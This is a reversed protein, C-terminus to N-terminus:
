KATIYKASVWGTYGNYTTKAWGDIAETVTIETGKPIECLVDSSTNASSRLNLAGSSTSIVYKGPAVPAAPTTVTEPEVFRYVQGNEAKIGYADFLETLTVLKYGEAILRPVLAEVVDATFNYIDHMLVISGKDSNAIVHEVIKNIDAQRQVESRGQHSADKYKWDNTDVNWGIFPMGAIDTVGQTFGGPARLYKCEVGTIEKIKANNGQIQEKVEAQSIKTLYKHGLTHNGIECGMDFAEKAVEPHEDLNYGVTFFTALSDNEKLVRLIKRTSDLGPGDDFTLAILKDEKSYKSTTQEETTETAKHTKDTEAKGGNDKAGCSSFIFLVALIFSVVSILKKKM